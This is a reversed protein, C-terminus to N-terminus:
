FSEFDLIGKEFPTFENIFEFNSTPLFKKLPTENVAIDAAVGLLKALKVLIDKLYLSENGCINIVQKLPEVEDILVKVIKSVDDVYIPNFLLGGDQGIEIKQKHILKNILQKFLMQENQHKGYIFFPRLIMMSQYYSDFTNIIM